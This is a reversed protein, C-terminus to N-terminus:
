KANRKRETLIRPVLNNEKNNTRTTVTNAFFFFCKNSCLTVKDM